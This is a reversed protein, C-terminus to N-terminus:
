DKKWMIKAAFLCVLRNDVDYTLDQHEDLLVVDVEYSYQSQAFDIM